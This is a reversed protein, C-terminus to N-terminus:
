SRPEGDGPLDEAVKKAPRKLKRLGAIVYDAYASVFAEADDVASRVLEKSFALVVSRRGLFVTLYFVPEDLALEHELLVLKTQDWKFVLKTPDIEITTALGAVLEQIGNKGPGDKDLDGQMPNITYSFNSKEYWIRRNDPSGDALDIICAEM